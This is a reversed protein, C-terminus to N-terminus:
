EGFLMANIVPTRGRAAAPNELWDVINQQREVLLDRFHELDGITM